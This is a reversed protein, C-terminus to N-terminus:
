IFASIVEDFVQISFNDPPLSPFILRLKGISIQHGIPCDIEVLDVVENRIGARSRGFRGTPWKISLEVSKNRSKLSFEGVLAKSEKQVCLLNFPLGM